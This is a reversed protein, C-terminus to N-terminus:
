AGDRAFQADTAIAEEAPQGYVQGFQPPSGPQAAGTLKASAAGDSSTQARARAPGITYQDTSGRPARWYAPRGAKRAVM